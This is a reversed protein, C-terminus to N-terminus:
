FVLMPASILWATCGQFVACRRVRYRYSGPPHGPAPVLYSGYGLNAHPIDVWEGGNRQEHLEAANGYILFFVGYVGNTPSGPDFFIDGYPPETPASVSVQNTEVSWPSPGYSNKALIRYYFTGSVDAPRHVVPNTIDSAIRTWHVFPFHMVGEDVDYATAGIPANWSVSYPAEQTIGGPVHIMEVRKPRVGMPSSVVWGGCVERCARVRYVYSGGEGPRENSAGAGAGRYVQSWGGGDRQEELEYAVVGVVGGWMVTYPGDTPSASSFWIAGPTDAQTRTAQTVLKGALYIYDTESSVRASDRQHMLGGTQSYVYYTKDGGVGLRTKLARRGFADYVYSERGNVETLRNALDFTFPTSDRQIVNGRNDYAFQHLAGDSGRAASLRNLADYQYERQLGTNVQIHRLNNLPDYSYSESNAAGPLTAYTLRGLTDYGFNRQNAAGDALDNAQTLNGSADYSFDQSFLLGGGPRVYSMNSARQRANKAAVYEMGNGYKFYELEGDPFYRASSAFSGAQTPRGLGDPAHEVVRGSPYTTSALSGNADYAYNLVYPIGDVTLTENTPLGLANYVYTWLSLGTDARLLRGAANYTFQTGGTGAPYAVSLVRGMPDYSRFTKATDPVQDRGCTAGSVNMGQVSWALRDGADYDMVTSGSEPESIRCLRKASDYVYQRTLSVTANQYLGSQTLSQPLGYVDRAITQSIGEPADVSLLAGGGPIDLVQRRVTTVAGKADKFQTRAGSLYATTSAPKGHESDQESKIPRGLSDFTTFVGQSISDRPLEGGLPYSSFVTQGRWDYIQRTSVQGGAVRVNQHVLAPRGLADYYTNNQTNGHVVTMRSAYGGFQQGVPGLDYHISTDNWAVSDNKPSGLRTVRGMADYDMSTTIGAPDTSSIIQGFADISRSERTGDPHIITGPVGLTYDQFHTTLGNGDTASAILGQATYTYSAKKAGFSYQEKLTLNSADYVSRNVIAGDGVNTTSLPLGLIWHPLDNLYDTRITLGWQGDISNSRHVSTSQAFENLTTAQYTYTDGDQTISRKLLPTLLGTAVSSRARPSTGIRDPYPGMDAKAYTFQTTRAASGDPKRDIQVNLVQGETEDAVNSYAMRMIRQDPSWSETWAPSVLSSSYRYTWAQDTLGAGSYTRKTIALVDYVWPRWAFNRAVECDLQANIRGRTRVELTFRATLGQPDILSGTFESGMNTPDSHRCDADPGIIPAAETLGRLDFTWSTGDPNIVETLTERGGGVDAYHYSWVRPSSADPRLTVKDILSPADSRYAIDIQAESNRTVGTLRDGDYSYTLVNGFRDEVRTALLSVQDRLLVGLRELNTAPAWRYVMHDFTYKIGGPSVAIFADGPEGNATKGICDIQWQKVTVLPFNMATGDPRQMQPLLRNSASRKLVEQEGAGPVILQYGQWWVNPDIASPDLASGENGRPANASASPPAAFASCRAFPDNGPVRWGHGDPYKLSLTTIRPLELSWDAFAGPRWWFRRSSGPVWQRVLGMDPGAGPLAADLHNLMLEGTLPNFLEGVAGGDPIQMYDRLGVQARQDEQPKLIQGFVAISPYFGLLIVAAARSLFHHMSILV